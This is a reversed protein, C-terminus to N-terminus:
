QKAHVDVGKAILRSALKYSAYPAALGLVTGLSSEQQCQTEDARSIDARPVSAGRDLLRHVFNEIDSIDVERGSREETAGFAAVASFLPPETSSPDNAMLPPGCSLLHEAMEFRSHLCAVHFLHIKRRRLRAHLPETQSPDSKYIEVLARLADICGNEAALEFPDWVNPNWQDTEVEPMFFRTGHVEVYRHLNAVDNVIIIFRSLSTFGDEYLASGDLASIVPPIDPLEEFPETFNGYSM